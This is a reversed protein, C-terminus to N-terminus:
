INLKVVKSADTRHEPKVYQLGLFAFIDKESHINRPEPGKADIRTLGHENLSWGLKTAYSRIAVSFTDSGTFYLQAFPFEHSPTLLFDIRRYHSDVKAVSMCKRPGLALIDTLYGAEKMKEIFDHFHSGLKPDGTLLVDIDGSDPRKRRYSGVIEAKMGKELFSHIFLDHLEIENRPIRLQFDNYHELGIKSADSLLTPDKNVKRRLDSLSVIGMQILQKAKTPGVGHIKLLDDYLALNTLATAREASELKGTLFIEDIKAHIKKGIGVVDYKEIDDWNRIPGKIMQLQSIVKEYAKAKFLNKQIFENKRLVTLADIIKQKSDM